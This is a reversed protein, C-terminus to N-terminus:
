EVMIEDIFMFANVGEYVHGKPCKGINKAVVKIYRANQKKFPNTFIKITTNEDSDPVDVDIQSVQKFDKNDNSLWISIKEPFFIGASVAQLFSVTVKSVEQGKLLDITGDFDVGFYGQWSGERYNITGRIGETLAYEKASPYRKDYLYQVKVPLGTAKNALVDLNIVPSVIRGNKFAASKITLVKSVHFPAKYLNSNSDPKSGDLTYRINSNVIENELSVIINHQKRDVKYNARVNYASKAYNIGLANYREFQKELRKSFHRWNRQSQSTWAIESLAAMRPFMMYEAHKATPVYETWLNAQVGLIHKRENSNLSDKLSPDFSYVKKIPLMKTNAPPEYGPDGQYFDFYCYETPSFVVDHGQRAAIIGGELGRWSMVTANPSLGGAIIEDWGILKRNKSNIFKEIRKIFYSQLEEVNKLNEDAMRKQCKSCKEWADHKAEDGGIHIYQGPFMKIVESLIDTLFIFTSDNGACYVKRDQWISGTPVTISQGTCSFQPYAALAASCHGPMEIEPVITIFRDKAYEVIESIDNQTYYGGYTAKEGPRQPERHDSWPENERDARWAGIETLKPYKKIEIRWGQDDTLHWHFVNLKHMAMYDLTKLIFEKPFFHRSVDLMFGRWKSAPKDNITVCPLSFSIEDTQSAAYIQAPLMQLITQFAYFLGRAGKTEILIHKQDITINYEEDGFNKDSNKNVVIKPGDYPDSKLINKTKIVNFIKKSFLNIVRNIEVDDWESAIAITGKANFVGKNFETEQPKPIISLEKNDKHICSSLSLLMISVIIFINGKKM